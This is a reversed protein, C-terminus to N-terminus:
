KAGRAADIRRLVEADSVDVRGARSPKFIAYGCPEGLTQPDGNDLNIPFPNDFAWYEPKGGVFNKWLWLKMERAADEADSTAPTEVKAPAAALANLLVIQPSQHWPQLRGDYGALAYAIAERAAALDRQLREIEDCAAHLCATMTSGRGSNAVERWYRVDASM